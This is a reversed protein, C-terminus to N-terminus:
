QESPSDAVIGAGAKMEDTVRRDACVYLRCALLYDKKGLYSDDALDQVVGFWECLTQLEEGYFCIGGPIEAAM